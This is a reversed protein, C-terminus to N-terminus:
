RPVRVVDVVPLDVGKGRFVIFGTWEGLFRAKGDKERFVTFLVEPLTPARHGLDQPFM